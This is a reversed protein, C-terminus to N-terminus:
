VKSGGTSYLVTSYLVASYRIIPHCLDETSGSYLILISHELPFNQEKEKATVSDCHVGKPGDLRWRVDHSFVWSDWNRVQPSHLRIYDVYLLKCSADAWWQDGSLKRLVRGRGWRVVM